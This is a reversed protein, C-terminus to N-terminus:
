NKRGFAYFAGGNGRNAKVRQVSDQLRRVYSDHFDKQSEELDAKVYELFTVWNKPVEERNKRQTSLFYDAKCRGIVNVDEECKMKFTYRYLEKELHILIVFYVGFVKRCNKMFEAM